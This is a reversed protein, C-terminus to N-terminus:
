FLKRETLYHGDPKGRDGLGFLWKVRKNDDIVFVADQDAVALLGSKFHTGARSRLTSM